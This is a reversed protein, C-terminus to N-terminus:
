STSRTSTARPAGVIYDLAGAEPDVKDLNVTPAAWREALMRLSIWAELSGCAGLTHGIYSKLSSVPVRSGLVEETARSEAIDGIDTATGHANVYAIQDPALEADRLALRMAEAM